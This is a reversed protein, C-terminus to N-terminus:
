VELYEVPIGLEEAIAIEGKVGASLEWGDLKLVVVKICHELFVRDFNQWYQWDLPLDGVLAIPHTHSIPSYVFEGKSMLKAAAKNVADFRALRVGPDDHSYPCALYILKKKM